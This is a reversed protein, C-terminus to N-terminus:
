RPRTALDDIPAALHGNAPGAILPKGIGYGQQQCRAHYAVILRLPRFDTRLEGRGHRMM